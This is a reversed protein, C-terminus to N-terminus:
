ELGLQKRLNADDPFRDYGVQWAAMAKEHNGQQEYLNGLLLHTQSFQSNAVQNEQQGVLIEFHRIAEPQKGFMPPWFSYSIAKSFRADWNESDAALVQDYIGDAKMSWKGADMGAVGGRIIPQLYAYGLQNM